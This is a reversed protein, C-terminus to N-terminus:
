NKQEKDANVTIDRGASSDIIVVAGSETKISPRATAQPDTPNAASTYPSKSSSGGGFINQFNGFVAVLIAAIAAIVAAITGKGTQQDGTAM